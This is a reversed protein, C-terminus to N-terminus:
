LSILNQTDSKMKATDLKGSPAVPLAETYLKLLHPWHNASLKQVCILKIREMIEATKKHQSFVVHAVHTQKCDIESVVVKCQRVAEVDLIAREIDFLYITNGHEDTYSDNIRGDVYINGDDSVYGMDGTCAWINGKEDKMFYKSTADPRKHYEKMRCPTLVRIEGRQGYKLEKGTALDFASVTVNALPIGVSGIKNCQPLTTTITGGCECMGYGKHLVHSSGNEKLWNNIQVEIHPVVYEGGIVLYKFEKYAPNIRKKNCLYDVLSVATVMFNPKYKSIHQYLLEFDYLPELIVTMGLCLPVLMTVAIGTSFWIPIQAFYRDQRKMVFGAYEYQNITANIGDNTLQIGKSAGTTGSSYVMIAPSNKQYPVSVSLTMNKGMTIFSNWSITGPINKTRKMLKVMRGLSNIVPYSIVTKIKTRPIVNKIQDYVEGVVLLVTAETDNIRETLQKQTFTLNLINANAGIKNLALIAYIAEPTALVCLTVSDGSRVGCALFAKEVKEIEQFMHRYTIKKGFYLLAVDQPNTKNHDYINEFITKKPFPAHIAAESYYKLWPKDISPYGTYKKDEM